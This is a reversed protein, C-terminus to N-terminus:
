RHTRFRGSLLVLAGMRGRNGLPRCDALQRVGAADLIDLTKHGSTRGYGYREDNWAKDTEALRHRQNAPQSM